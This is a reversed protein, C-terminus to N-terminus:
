SKMYCAKRLSNAGLEGFEEGQFAAFFLCVLDLSSSILLLGGVNMNRCLEFWIFLEDFVCREEKRENSSYYVTTDGSGDM